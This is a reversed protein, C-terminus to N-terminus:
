DCDVGYRQLLKMGNLYSGFHLIDDASFMIDFKEELEAILTLHVLSDWAEVDSFTFTENLVDQKVDFIECFVKEYKKRNEM